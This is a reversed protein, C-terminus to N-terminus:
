NVFAPFSLPKKTVGVAPMENAFPTRNEVPSSQGSRSGNVIVRSPVFAVFKFELLIQVNSYVPEVPKSVVSARCAFPVIRVNGFLRVNM